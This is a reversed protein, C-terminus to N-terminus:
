PVCGIDVIMVCRIDLEYCLEYRCNYFVYRMNVMIICVNGIDTIIVCVYRIVLIM